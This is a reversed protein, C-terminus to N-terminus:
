GGDVLQIAAACADRIPELSSQVAAEALAGDMLMLVVQGKDSPGGVASLWTNILEVQRLKIAKIRQREPADADPFEAAMNLFACGRFRMFESYQALARFIGRVRESPTKGATANTELLAIWRAEAGALVARGLDNKSPFHRYFTARAVGSKAIVENIGVRNFGQDLFLASAVELIRDKPSQSSM